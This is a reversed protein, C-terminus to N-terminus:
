QSWLAVSVFACPLTGLERYCPGNDLSSNAAVLCYLSGGIGCFQAAGSSRVATFRTWAGSREIQDGLYAEGHMSVVIQFADLHYPAAERDAGAPCTQGRGRVPKM